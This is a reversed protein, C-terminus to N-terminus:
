GRKVQYQEWGVEELKEVKDLVEKEMNKMYESMKGVLEPIGASLIRVALLGANVGNNIAVTAVPIGRPM